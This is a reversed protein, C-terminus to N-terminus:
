LNRLYAIEKELQKIKEDSEYLDDLLSDIIDEKNKINFKLADIIDDKSLSPKKNNSNIVDEFM